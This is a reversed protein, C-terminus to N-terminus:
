RKEMREFIEKLTQNREQDARTKQNMFSMAKFIFVIMLIVIFLGVLVYLLAFLSSLMAFGSMEMM